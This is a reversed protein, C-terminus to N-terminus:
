QASPAQMQRDTEASPSLLLSVTRREVNRREGKGGSVSVFLPCLRGASSSVQALCCIEADHV